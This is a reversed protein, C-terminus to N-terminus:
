VVLGFLTIPDSGQAREIPSTGIFPSCYVLEFPWRQGGTGVGAIQDKPHEIGRISLVKSKSGLFGLTSSSVQRSRLAFTHLFHCLGCRPPTNAVATTRAFLLSCACLIAVEWPEFMYPVFTVDFWIRIRWFFYALRGEPPQHYNHRSHWHSPFNKSKQSLEGQSSNRPSKSGGSSKTSATTSPMPRSPNERPFPPFASSTIPSEPFAPDSEAKVGEEGEESIVIDEVGPIWVLVRLLFRRRVAILIGRSLPRM